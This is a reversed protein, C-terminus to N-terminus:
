ELELVISPYDFYTIERCGACEFGDISEDETLLLHYQDAGCLTCEGYLKDDNPRLQIIKAM